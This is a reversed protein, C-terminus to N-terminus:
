PLPVNRLTFPVEIVTLRRGTFQLRIPGAAQEKTPDYSITFQRM